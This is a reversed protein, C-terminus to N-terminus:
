GKNKENNTFNPSPSSSSSSSSSSRLLPLRHRRGSSRSFASERSERKLDEVTRRIHLLPRGKGDLIDFRGIVVM